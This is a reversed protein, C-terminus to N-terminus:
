HEHGHSGSTLSTIIRELIAYGAHQPSVHMERERPPLSPDIIRRRVAEGVVVSVPEHQSALDTWFRMRVIKDTNLSQGGGAKVTIPDFWKTEVYGERVRVWRLEIGEDQLLDSLQKVIIEPQGAITDTIAQPFPLFAPRVGGAGCAGFAIPLTIVSVFILRRFM